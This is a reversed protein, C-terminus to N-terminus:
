ERCVAPHRKEDIQQVKINRAGCGDYEPENFAKVKVLQPGETDLRSRRFPKPETKGASIGGPDQDHGRKVWGAAPIGAHLLPPSIPPQAIQLAFSVAPGGFQQCNPKEPMNLPKSNPARAPDQGRM